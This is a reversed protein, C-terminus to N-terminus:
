EAVGKEPAPVFQECTCVHLGAGSEDEIYKTGGDVVCGVEAQHDGELHGCNM